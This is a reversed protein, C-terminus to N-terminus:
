NRPTAAPAPTQGTAADTPDPTGLMQAADDLARAEDTSVDGPGRDDRANGCGALAALAFLLAVKRM